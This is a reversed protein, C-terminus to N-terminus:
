ISEAFVRLERDPEVQLEKRLVKVYNKYHVKAAIPTGMDIYNKMLALHFEDNFPDILIAKEYLMEVQRFRGNQNELKALAVLANLFMTRLQTRRYETWEMSIDPIFDTQYLNVARALKEQIEEPELGPKKTEGILREFEKVDYHLQISPKLYYFGDTYAIADRDGIMKRIRWMTTHFNSNIKAQSFEPWFELSIDEKKAKSKDVIYFFLARANVSRWLGAPVIRHDVEVMSNNLANVTLSVAKEESVVQIDVLQPLGPRFGDIRSVISELQQNGPNVDLANKLLSLVKRGATVFFQDYGLRATLELSREVQDFAQKTEGLKHLAAGLYLCNLIYDQSIQPTGWKSLAYLLTDEALKVQGMELYVAGVRFIYQPAEKSMGGVRFAERLWFLADHYQGRQRSLEALGMYTEYNVWQELGKGWRQAETYSREAEDWEEIDRLLEGRSDYISILIRKFRGALGIELAQQYYYWAKKFQGIQYFFYGANNLATALAGKNAKNKQRIELVELFCRQADYIQGDGFYTVGLDNLTEALDHNSLSVIGPDMGPQMLTRFGAAANELFVIASKTEAIGRLGLAKLRSIQFWYFNNKDQNEWLVDLEDVIDLLAKFKQQLSMSFGRTVLLNTLSLRNGQERLLPEAIDLMREGAEFEGADILSKAWNLVLHPARDLVEPPQKLENVWQAIMSHQGGVFLFKVVHDIWAAAGVRDGSQLKHRIALEWQSRQFFWDAARAHLHRQFDQHHTVLRDRLFEVYLQHYRYQVEGGELELHTLFLGREEIQQLIEEANDIELLYNCIDIGFDELISTGLMFRQLLEPERSVVDEALFKYVQETAGQFKPLSGGVMSRVSLMIAVIWGDSRKALEQAQEDSMELKYNQRVLDQLEAATFRLDDASITALEERVFLSAAPIGYVSRGSILFRVQDPLNNLLVEMFDVIGEAEGVLHYDDIIVLCFDDIQRIIENLVEGALSLSDPSSGPSQLTNFLDVGFAPFKQQIAAIFHLAFPKLDYDESGVRYWAVRADVDGAFDALLTTKGYGAPASVFSLKKHLNQHLRDILRERRLIDRRRHPLQVKTLVITM